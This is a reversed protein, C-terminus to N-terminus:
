GIIGRAKLDNILTGLIDALEDMTYSDANLTRDTTANTITYPNATSQIQDFRAKVTAQTGSPNIGLEAEIKNAADALDNIDAADVPEGVLNEHDTEFSDLGTPFQSAM